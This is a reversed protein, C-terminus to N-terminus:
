LLSVVLWDLFFLVILVGFFLYIRAPRNVPECLHM